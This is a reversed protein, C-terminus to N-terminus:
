SQAYFGAYTNTRLLCSLLYSLSLPNMSHAFCSFHLLLLVGTCLLAATNRSWEGSSLCRVDASLAGTSLQYGAECRVNVVAGVYTHTSNLHRHLRNQIPSCQIASILVGLQICLYCKAKSTVSYSDPFTYTLNHQNHQAYTSLDVFRRDVDSHRCRLHCQRTHQWGRVCVWSWM